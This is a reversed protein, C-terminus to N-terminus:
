FHPRYMYVDKISDVGRRRRKGRCTGYMNMYSCTSRVLVTCHLCGPFPQNRPFHPPAYLLAEPHMPNLSSLFEPGSAHNSWTFSGFRARSPSHFCSAPLSPRLAYSPRKGEFCLKLQPQRDQFKIVPHTSHPTPSKKLNAGSPFKNKERSDNARNQARFRALEMRQPTLSVLGIQKRLLCM